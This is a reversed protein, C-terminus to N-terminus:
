FRFKNKITDELRFYLTRLELNFGFLLKDINSTNINYSKSTIKKTPNKLKYVM